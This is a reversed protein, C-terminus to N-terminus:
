PGAHGAESRTSRAPACHRRRATRAGLEGLVSTVHNEVTGEAM